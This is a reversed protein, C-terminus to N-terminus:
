RGQQAECQTAVGLPRMQQDGAHEALVHGLPGGHDVAGAEVEAPADPGEETVLLGGAGDDQPVGLGGGGEAVGDGVAEAEGRVEVGGPSRHVPDGARAAELLGVRVGGGVQQQGLVGLEEGAVAGQDEDVVLEGGAVGDEVGDPGQVLAVRAVPVDDDGEDVHARGGVEAAQVGERRLHAGADVEDPAAAGYAEGFADQLLAPRQDRCVLRRVLGGGGGRVAGGGDPDREVPRFAQGVAAPVAEGGVVPFPELRGQRGEGVTDPLCEVAGAAGEHEAELLQHVRRQAEAGGQLVGSVVDAVGGGGARGDEGDVVGAVRDAGPEDERGVVVGGVAGALAVGVVDGAGAEVGDDEDDVGGGVGRGQVGRVAQYGLEGRVDRADHEGDDGRVCGRGRRVGRVVGRGLDGFSGFPAGHQGLGEAAGGEGRVCGLLDAPQELVERVDLELRGGLFALFGDLAAARVVGLREGDLVLGAAAVLLEEM